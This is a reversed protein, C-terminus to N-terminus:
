AKKLLLVLALALAALLLLLPWYRYLGGVQPRPITTGAGEEQAQSGVEGHVPPVPASVTVRAYYAALRYASYSEGFERARDGVALFFLVALPAKGRSAASLAKRRATELISRLAARSLRAQESVIATESLVSSEVALVCARLKDGGSLGEKASAYYAAAKELMGAGTRVLAEAYSLLARAESVLSPAEETRVPADNVLLLAKALSADAVAAALLSFAADPSKEWLEKAREVAVVALTSFRAALAPSAESVQSSVSEVYDVDDEVAETLLDDKWSLCILRATEADRVAERLALLAEVPDSPAEQLTKNASRLYPAAMMRLLSTTTKSAEAARAIRDKLTSKLEEVAPMLSVLRTELDRVEAVPERALKVGLFAEVADRIDDVERVILGWEKAAYETLNVHVPQAYRMVFPGIRREVFKYTVIVTEGPPVLFLKAGEKAAAEAKELVGGVIGVTGDPNITGTMMVSRNIPRGSLVSYALVTMVAGASPGGVIVTDAEVRYLFTFRNFDLGLLKCATRAAINATAQMDLETLPSTSVYVEGHGKLVVLSINVLVGRYGERAATVAPAYIWGRGVVEVVPQAPIVPVTLLLVVVVVVALERKM